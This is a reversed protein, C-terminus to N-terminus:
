PKDSKDRASLRCGCLAPLVLFTSLLSYLLAVTLLKGMGSTGPHLSLALSGFAVLVTAASFLVARAMSSQLPKDLGSRWYSVFYIAYSVGLSLLMPLAIINAFNLPLDILVITALTLIGALILPTILIVVDIFRRLILFSLLSIAILAYIGAHIFAHTVILGSEQISIPAGGADPAIARVARTFAIQTEHERPNGKPYAQVLYQGDPTVWDRKLDDTINEPTIHEAQLALTVSELKAQMVAIINKNLRELLDHDHKAVVDSLAQSLKAASPHENSLPKLADALKQLAALNDNDSPGAGAPPLNLAPSLILNADSVMALKADQDEPVFSALTMAHDIEPLKQLRDALDHAEKLSPRLIDITYSNFDPDHMLDFLTSVSETHPNKLNLPDFDFRLQTTIAIGLVALTLAIALVSRRNKQLFADIPAACRYGVAEPEAPPNTLALLAPLLMINLAFAILMGMGAIMGLESVGRYATPIFAFFGLSTSGAAMALPIAIVAATRTMAKNNDPEQHRQDRYRVGFQIGFDVAIGIFMVAFAVSILNLSGIAVLAFATTCVLGVALTLLIPLVIRLSRLAILLIIFVLIVSMLTATGTGDAVSAFEEDNLPVSGTLRVRVGNDPTLQLTKVLERVAESSAAGPQLESYNLIPKAIIFKRTDRLTPPKDSAMSQWALPKDQGALAAKVTDAITNLPQDLRDYTIQGVQLGQLMLGITSFFGRLSPDTSLAGLLPQAEVMKNLAASVDDKPLFLLGNKRFFPISDPRQVFSFKDPMASLKATLQTAANEAADATDGDVVILTIDTKQPFAHELEKEKKRWDFDGSILQNIDTNIKFNYAVFFGLGTAIILSLVIIMVAFRRSFDVIHVILNTLM